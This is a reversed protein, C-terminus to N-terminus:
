KTEEECDPCLSKQGYDSKEWGCTACFSYLIWKDGDKVEYQWVEVFLAKEFKWGKLRVDKGRLKENTIVGHGRDNDVLSWLTGDAARLGQAHKSNLTCQADAGQKELECGLCVITGEVSAIKAFDHKKPADEALRIASPPAESTLQGSAM